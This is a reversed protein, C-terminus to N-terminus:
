HEEARRRAGRLIRRGARQILRAAPLSAGEWPRRVEQEWCGERPWFPPAVPVSKAVAPLRVARQRAVAAKSSAERRKSAGLTQRAGAV